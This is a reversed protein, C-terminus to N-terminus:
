ELCQPDPLNCLVHTSCYSGLHSNNCDRGASEPSLTYPNPCAFVGRFLCPSSRRILKLWPHAKIHLMVPKAYYFKWSICLNVLIDVSFLTYRGSLIRFFPRTYQVHIRLLPAILGPFLLATKSRVSPCHFHTCRETSCYAHRVLYCNKKEKENTKLIPPFFFGCVNTLFILWNFLEM